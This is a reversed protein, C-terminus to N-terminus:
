SGRRHVRSVFACVLLAMHAEKVAERVDEDEEADTWFVVSLEDQVAGGKMEKRRKPDLLAETYPAPTFLNALNVPRHSDIIHILTSAPLYSFSYRLDLLSGLNILILSRVQDFTSM